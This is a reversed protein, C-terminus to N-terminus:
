KGEASLLIKITKLGIELDLWLSRNKLYYLDYSLKNRTEETDVGHHPHKHHNLQAWGSLGPTILHRANYYPIESAYRNVADPFEPRPGILSYGGRLVNWLQPLEDIRTTRLIGGVKTVRNSVKGWEGADNAVTMTRFKVLDLPQNDKGVRRQFSFIPGGDDLKIAFAVFPFLILTVMGLVLSLTVDFFRHALNFLLLPQRAVHAIFWTDQLMSIPIRRFIDEYLQSADLVILQPNLFLLNYLVPTINSMNPDRADVIIVTIDEQTIFHHIQEQLKESVEVEHPAFQHRVQLGYRDNAHLERTLQEIERGKGLVLAGTQRRVGVHRTLVLRWFVVLVSSVALFIVLITKPTIGFYPVSFFFLAALVVTAIQSYAILSPLKSRLLTTHQDYLGAIFYVVVSLLFLLSFPVAHRFWVEQTPFSFERLALTIWLAVYFVLVDGFLLLLPENRIYRM